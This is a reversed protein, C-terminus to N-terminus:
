QSWNAGIRRKVWESCFRNWRHRPRPMGRASRRLALLSRNGSKSKPRFGRVAQLLKGVARSGSLFWAARRSRAGGGAGGGAAAASPSKPWSSYTKWIQLSPDGITEKLRSPGCRSCRRRPWCIAAPSPRPAAPRRSRPWTWCCPPWTTPSLPWTEDPRGSAQFADLRPPVLDRGRGPPRREQVRPRAPQLRYRGSALNGAAEQLQAGGRSLLARGRGVPARRGRGACAVSRGGRGHGVPALRHSGDGARGPRPLRGARRHLPPPGRRLRAACPWPAWNALNRCRGDSM